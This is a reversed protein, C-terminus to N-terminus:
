QPQIGAERTVRIWKEIDAHMLAAFEEPRDSALDPATSVPRAQSAVLLQELPAQQMDRNIRISDRCVLTRRFSTGDLFDLHQEFEILDQSHRLEDRVAAALGAREPAPPLAETLYQLGHRAAQM